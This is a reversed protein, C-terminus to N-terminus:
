GDSDEVNFKSLNKEHEVSSAFQSLLQLANLALRFEPKNVEGATVIKTAITRVQEFAAALEEMHAM